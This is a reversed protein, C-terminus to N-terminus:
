YTFPFAPSIPLQPTGPIGTNGMMIGLIILAIVIAGFILVAWFLGNHVLHDFHVSVSHRGPMHIHHVWNKFDHNNM